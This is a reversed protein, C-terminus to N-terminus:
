VCPHSLVYMSTFFTVYPRTEIHSTLFKPKRKGSLSCSGIPGLPWGVLAVYLRLTSWSSLFTKKGLTAEVLHVVNNKWRFRITNKKPGLNKLWTGKRVLPSQMALALFKDGQDSFKAEDRYLAVPLGGYGPHDAMWQAVESWHHWYKRASPILHIDKRKTTM